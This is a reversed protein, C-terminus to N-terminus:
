HHLETVHVTKPSNHFMTYSLVTGPFTKPASTPIRLICNQGFVIACVAFCRLGNVKRLSSCKKLKRFYFVAHFFIRLLPYKNSSLTM